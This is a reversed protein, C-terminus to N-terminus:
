QAIRPRLRGPAQFLPCRGGVWSTGRFSTLHIVLPLPSPPLYERQDRSCLTVSVIPICILKCLVAVSMHKCSHILRCSCATPVKVAILERYVDWQTLAEYHPYCRCRKSRLCCSCVTLVSVALVERYVDWQLRLEYLARSAAPMPAAAGARALWIHPQQSQPVERAACRFTRYSRRSTIFIREPGAASAYPEPCDFILRHVSTLPLGPRRTLGSPAASQIGESIIDKPQCTEQQNQAFVGQLEVNRGHNYWKFNFTM